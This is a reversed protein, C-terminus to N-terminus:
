PVPITIGQPGGYQSAMRELHRNVVEIQLRTEPSVRDNASLRIPEPVIPRGAVVVPTCGAACALVAATAVTLCIRPLGYM